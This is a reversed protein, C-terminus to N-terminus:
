YVGACLHPDIHRSRPHTIRLYAKGNEFLSKDHCVCLKM